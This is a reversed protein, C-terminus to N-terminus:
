LTCTAGDDPVTLDILYAAALEDVCSNQGTAVVKHGNGEVTLLASGLTRALSVAGEHPTTPDGAISVVLTDPLGEIDQAYPIDLDPEVPWHECVDRVGRTVDVGPDLFPAREYATERLKAGQEPTLRAEDM